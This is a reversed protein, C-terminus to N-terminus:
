NTGPFVCVSEVSEAIIRPLYLDQLAIGRVILFLGLSFALYPVLKRISNRLDLSLISPALYMFYMAPFTGLGFLALYMMSHSPSETLVAVALGSYVFACPLLGNLIGMGFLAPLSEKRLLYGYYTSIKQTFKEFPIPKTHNKYFRNMLVAAVIAVGLVISIWGQFGAITIQTGLLGFLLGLLGYILIRGSNYILAHGTLIFFRSSSRPISMAIPGCMGVCHFSGAFGLFLATWLEM